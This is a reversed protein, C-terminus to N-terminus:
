PVVVVKYFRRLDGTAHTYSKTTEGAGATIIGSVAIYTDTLTAASDVRYKRGPM